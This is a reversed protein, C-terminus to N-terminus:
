IMSTSADVIQKCETRECLHSFFLFNAARVAVLPAAAVAVLALERVGLALRNLRRRTAEAEVEAVPTRAVKAIAAAVHVAIDIVAKLDAGRLLRRALLRGARTAAAAAAAATAHADRALDRDGARAFGIHVAHVHAVEGRVLRVQRLVLLGPLVAHREHKANRVPGAVHRASGPPDRVLLVEESVIRLRDHLAHPNPQQAFWGSRRRGGKGAGKRWRRRM